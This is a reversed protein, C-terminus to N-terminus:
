SLFVTSHLFGVPPNNVMAVVKMLALVTLVIAALLHLVPRTQTFDVREAQM